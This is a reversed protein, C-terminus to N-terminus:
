IGLFLVRVGALLTVCLFGATYMMRNARTIDKPEIPASVTVSRRNTTCNGSITHRGQWSCMSREPWPRKVSLRTPAPMAGGTGDGFAGPM